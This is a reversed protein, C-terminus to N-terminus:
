PALLNPTKVFYFLFRSFCFYVALNIGSDALYFPHEALLYSTKALSIEYKALHEAM